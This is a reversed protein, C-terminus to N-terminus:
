LQRPRRPEVIEFVLSFDDLLGFLEAVRAGDGEVRVLGREIAETITVERRVLRDLAPRDLTVTADADPRQRDALYTLACNDLTSVYRRDLDAFVETVRFLGHHMNLRAQRWLSPNVTPPAEEAALFAYDRLSWVVRGQANRIEVEPLSAVFGRGADEFDRTDHFPLADLVARNLARTVATADKPDQAITM